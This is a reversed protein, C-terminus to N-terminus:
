LRWTGAKKKHVKAVRWTGGVKVWVKAPVWKGAVKVAAGSLAEFSTVASWPGAGLANHARVRVYNLVGPSLGTVIKKGGPTMVNQTNATMGPSTATQIEYTTISSGGNNAAAFDVLATDPGIDSVTPKGPADPVTAGTTAYALPSWGSWGVANRARTQFSYTTARALGGIDLVNGNHNIFNGSASYQWEVIGAGNDAPWATHVRVNSSTINSFTPTGPPNPVNPPRAPLTFGREQRPTGGNYSGSIVAGFAYYPGGGYSQGLGHITLTGVHVAQWSGNPVNFKFNWSGTASGYATLTQNDNFGYGISRVYYDIYVNIWPTNTDYPDHRIDIGVQENGHAGGWEIAM